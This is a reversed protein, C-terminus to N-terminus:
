TLLPTMGTRRVESNNQNVVIDFLQRGDINVVVHQGGSEALAEALAEKMTSLPSVVETETKNDGLMAMFQRNPPVVTGQALYPISPVSIWPIRGYFPQIGAISINRITSLVGNIANFPVAIVSNVGSIIGNVVKRFVASIGDAIGNFIQGGKTLATKIKEWATSLRASMSETFSQWWMKIAEIGGRLGEKLSNWKNMVASSFDQWKQTTWATVNAWIAKINEAVSKIREWVMLLGNILSAKTQARAGTFFTFFATIWEKLKGVVDSVKEKIWNFDFTVASLGVASAIMAIGLGVNAGTFLLLAGLVLFAGSLAYSLTRLINMLISSTSDWNFATAAVMGAVGAVIMGIGLPVNAGTLALLLGVALLAGSAVSVVAALVRRVEEPASDWNVAMESALGLCGLAILGVGLPVNAGTLVLILGLALVAGLAIAEIKLLKDTIETPDFSLGGGAGGGGGGGSNDDLRNIEDIGALSKKIDKASGAGKALSGAMKQADKRANGWGIGFLMGFFQGIQTVVANIINILTTLVPILTNLIPTALTLLNGKLQAIANSLETDSMILSAFATRVARLASTMTSFIFVRKAMGAIMDGIGKTKEKSAGVESTTNGAERNLEKLAAAYANAETKLQELKTKQDALKDSLEGLRQRTEGMQKIKSEDYLETPAFARGNWALMGNTEEELAGLQARLGAIEAETAEIGATQLRIDIETRAAKRAFQTLARQAEDVELNVPILVEGDAM